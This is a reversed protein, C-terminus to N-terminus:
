FAFSYSVCVSLCEALSELSLLLVGFRAVVARIRRGDTNNANGERSVCSKESRLISFTFSIESIGFFPLVHSFFVRTDSSFVVRSKQTHRQSLLALIYVRACFFHYHSSSFVLFLLRQSAVVHPHVRPLSSSPLTERADFHEKLVYWLLNLRKPLFFTRSFFLVERFKM